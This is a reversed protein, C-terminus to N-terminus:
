GGAMQPVLVMKEAQPDFKRMQEGANGKRDVTYALYHKKTVFDDFTKRAHETEEKNDPDWMHKLDGEIGMIAMENKVKAETEM